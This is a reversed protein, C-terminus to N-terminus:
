FYRYLLFIGSLLQAYIFARINSIQFYSTIGNEMFNM